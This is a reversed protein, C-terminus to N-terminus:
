PRSRKLLNLHSWGSWAEPHARIAAEADAYLQESMAAVRLEVPLSPDPYIPAYATLVLGSPSSHTTWLALPRESRVALWAPGDNRPVTHGLIEINATPRANRAAQDLAVYVSHGAKLHRLLAGSALHETLAVAMDPSDGFFDGLLGSFQSVYIGHAWPNVIRIVERGHSRLANPVAVCVPGHLFAGVTAGGAELYGAMVRASDQDFLRNVLDRLRKRSLVTSVYMFMYNRSPEPRGSLGNAELNNVITLRTSRWVHKGIPTHPVMGFMWALLFTPSVSVLFGVVTLVAGLVHAAVRRRRGAKVPPTSTMAGKMDLAFILRRARQGAGPETGEAFELAEADSKGAILTRAVLAGLRDTRFFSGSGIHVVAYEGRRPSRAVAVMGRFYKKQAGYTATRADDLVREATDFVESFHLRAVGLRGQNSQGIAWAYPMPCEGWRMTNRRQYRSM